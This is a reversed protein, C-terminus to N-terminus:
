WNYVQGTDNNPDWDKVDVVKLVLDGSGLFYGYVIWTHNRTFDGASAMTFDVDKHQTSTESIKLDYSIKGKLQKDSERLYFRGLESLDPDNQGAQTTLGLNIKDEYSQGTETTGDFAYSAPNVCDNITTVEGSITFLTGGDYTTGSPINSQNKTSPYDYLESLFLNEKQPVMGDNLTVTLNSIVPPHSEPITKSFIFRVKSVARVLRVNNKNASFVPADGTVEQSKQFGSMPLGGTPVSMIPNTLSTLGTMGFFDGDTKKELLAAMLESPMTNEDYHVGCNDDTVNALVYIDVRPKTSLEAFEKSIEMTIEKQGTGADFILDNVHAYGVLVSKGSEFVWADLTNISNESTSADVYGEDARTVFPNNPAFLYIKLVPKEYTEKSEECAMLVLLLM